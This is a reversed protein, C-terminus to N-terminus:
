LATIRSTAGVESWLSFLALGADPTASGSQLRTAQERLSAERRFLRVALVHKCAAQGKHFDACDCRCTEGVVWVQHPDTGGTVRYGDGAVPQVWLELARRLRYPDAGAVPLSEFRSSPCPEPLTERYDDVPRLDALLGADAVFREARARTIGPLYALSAPDTRALVALDTIGAAVLRRALMPGIGKVQTLTVATEDLRAGVMRGLMVVRERPTVTGLRWGSDGQTRAQTALLDAWALLLREASDALRELEFAYCDHQAALRETAVGRTLQRLLLAMKLAALMQRGSLDLAARLTTLPDRLLRSPEMRLRDALPELEEFSVPLVPECDPSSAVILLGDFWTLEAQSSLRQWLLLTAPDLQHRVAVRALPTTRLRSPAAPPDPDVERVLGAARLTELIRTVTTAPLQGQWAALSRAFIRQLQEPTQALGADIEVLLQEALVREDALASRIPEFVGREYDKARKEWAPALLVAEGESDLGPRGARGVRQWVTSVPLPVFGTGDFQQLDYLVVQRVPLNLGMELTATAVLVDIRQQRFETEVQRRPAPDLGAHHHRAELGAARLVETLQEARRRSQVFVLSRGGAAVCRRVDEVLLAPKDEARRYRAIRWRLPVPRWTSHYEVAGWWAALEGRNGLTASLGLLRVFPNLRQLRSLAGELRGGRPNDGLLHLEDVVVLDVEPLWDWHARWRRTCADLREPTMVLLRAQSFPVPYAARGAGFDGTFVGVPVSLRQQWKSALEMALARLPALYIARQGRELVRAMAQEALWTKGSGTPMQLICSFGSDLLGSELIETQPPPLTM